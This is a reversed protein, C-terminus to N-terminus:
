SLVTRNYSRWLGCLYHTRLRSLDSLFSESHYEASSQGITPDEFGVYRSVHLNCLFGPPLNTGTDDAHVRGWTSASYPKARLKNTSFVHYWPTIPLPVQRDFSDHYRDLSCQLRRSNRHRGRQSWIVLQLTWKQCTLLIIFLVKRKKIGFTQGM